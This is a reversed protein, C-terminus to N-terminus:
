NLALQHVFWEKRFVHAISEMTFVCLIGFLKGFEIAFSDDTTTEQNVAVQLALTVPRHCPVAHGQSNVSM